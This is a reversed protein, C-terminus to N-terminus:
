YAWVWAHGFTRAAESKEVMEHLYREKELVVTEPPLPRGHADRVIIADDPIVTNGVEFTWRYRGPAPPLPLDVRVYDWNVMTEHDVWDPGDDVSRALIRIESGDPAGVYVANERQGTTIRPFITWVPSGDELDRHVYKGRDELFVTRNWHRGEPLEVPEGKLLGMMFSSFAQRVGESNSHAGGLTFEAYYPVEAVDLAQCFDFPQSPGIGPDHTGFGVALYLSRYSEVQAVPSRRRMVEPDQSGSMCDRLVRMQEEHVAGPVWDPKRDKSLEAAAANGLFPFTGNPQYCITGYNTPPAHAFIGATRYDLGPLNAGWMLASVAGRSKGAFVVQQDDIKFHAKAFAIGAGVSRLMEPHNGQSERGGQNVMALVFPYGAMGSRAVDDPLKLPGTGGYASSNNSTAGSRGSVVFIYPGGDAQWNPGVFFTWLSKGIVVNNVVQMRAVGSRLRDMHNYVDVPCKGKQEWRRVARFVRAKSPATHDTVTASYREWGPPRVRRRDAQTGGPEPYHTVIPYDVTSDYRLTESCGTLFGTVLLVSFLVKGDM